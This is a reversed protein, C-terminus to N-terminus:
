LSLGQKNITDILDNLFHFEKETVSIANGWGIYLQYGGERPTNTTITGNKLNTQNKAFFSRIIDAHNIRGIERTLERSAYIGQHTTWKIQSM